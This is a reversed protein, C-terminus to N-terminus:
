LRRHAFRVDQEISFLEIDLKAHTKWFAHRGPGLVQFFRGDKWVIAREMAALDVVELQARLQSKEVLLDLLPHEFRVNLTDIVEVSDNFGLLWTTGPLLLDVFDGKRFWLGRQHERIHFISFM